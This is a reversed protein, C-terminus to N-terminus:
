LVLYFVIIGCEGHDLINVSLGLIVCQGAIGFCNLFTMVMAVVRLLCSVKGINFLCNKEGLPRGHFVEMSALRIPYCLFIMFEVTFISVTELLNM